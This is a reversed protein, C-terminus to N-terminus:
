RQMEERRAELGARLVRAATRLLVVRTDGSVQDLSGFLVAAGATVKRLVNSPTSEFREAAEWVARADEASLLVPDLAAQMARVQHDSIV